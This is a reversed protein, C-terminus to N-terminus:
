HQRAGPVGTRAAVSIAAATDFVDIVMDEDRYGAVHHWGETAAVIDNTQDGSLPYEAVRHRWHAAM